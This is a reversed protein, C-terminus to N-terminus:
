VMLSKERDNERHTQAGCACMDRMEINVSQRTCRAHGSDRQTRERESWLDDPFSLPKDGCEAQVKQPEPIGPLGPQTVGVYALVATM